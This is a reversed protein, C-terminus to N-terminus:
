GKGSELNWISRNGVNCWWVRGATGGGHGTGWMARTGYGGEYGGGYGGQLQM